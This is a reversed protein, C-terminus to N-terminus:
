LGVHWLCAALALFLVGMPLAALSLVPLMAGTENRHLLHQAPYYTILALPIAFTLIWRVGTPYITLPYNAFERGSSQVLDQLKGTRTHWFALTAVMMTLATLML